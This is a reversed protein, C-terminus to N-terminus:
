PIRSLSAEEVFGASSAEVGLCCILWIWRPHQCPHLYAENLVRHIGDGRIRFGHSIDGERIRGNLFCIESRFLLRKYRVSVISTEYESFHSPLSKVHCARQYVKFLYRPSSSSGFQDIKFLAELM